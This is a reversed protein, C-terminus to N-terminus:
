TLAEDTAPPPAQVAADRESRLWIWAILTAALGAVTLVILLYFVQIAASESGGIPDVPHRIVEAQQTVIWPAVGMVVHVLASFDPHAVLRIVLALALAALLIMFTARVRPENWAVWQGWALGTVVVASIVYLVWVILAATGAARTGRYWVPRRAILAILGLVGAVSFTALGVMVLAGHVYVLKILNGLRAEPPALVIWLLLLGGLVLAILTLIRFRIKHTTRM